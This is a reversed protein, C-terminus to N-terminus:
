QHVWDLCFSLTSFCTVLCMIPKLFPHQVRLPIMHIPDFAQGVECIPTGWFWFWFRRCFHSVNCTWSIWSFIHFWICQYKSIYRIHLNLKLHIQHLNKVMRAKWLRLKPECRNARLGRCPAYGRLVNPLIVCPHWTVSQKLCARKYTNCSWIKSALGLYGLFKPWGSGRLQFSFYLYRWLLGCCCRAHSHSASDSTSVVASDYKVHNM